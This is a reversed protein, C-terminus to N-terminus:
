QIAEGGIVQAALGLYADAGTAYGGGDGDAYVGEIVKLFRGPTVLFDFDVKWARGDRGPKAGRLFSSAEVAELAERWGVLGHAKLIALLKKRRTDNLGRLQALGCRSATERWAELALDLDTPGDGDPPSLSEEGKDKDKFKGKGQQVASGAPSDAPSHNEGAPSSGEGLRATAAPTVSADLRALCVIAAQRRREWEDAAFAHGFRTANGKAGKARHDLRKIHIELFRASLFRHYLRGDSCLTWGRLAMAKVEMWESLPLEACRALLRDDSPLSGAPLASHAAMWLNLGALKERADALGWFDSQRLRPVHLPMWELGEMSCDPPVFPPPLPASM